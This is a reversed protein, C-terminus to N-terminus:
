TAAVRLSEAFLRVRSAGSLTVISRDGGVAEAATSANRFRGHGQISFTMASGGDDFIGGAASGTYNLYAGRVFHWHVGDKALNRENYTGPSVVVLSGSAAVDKAGALTLKALSPSLGSNSDNGAPNVYYVTGYGCAIAGMNETTAITAGAANTAAIVAGIRFPDLAKRQAAGGVTASIRVYCVDGVSRGSLAASVKYLGTGADTITVTDATDTGNAVLVGTPLSDADSLAGASTVTSFEDRYTDTTAFM